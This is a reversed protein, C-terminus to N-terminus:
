ESMWINQIESDYKNTQEYLRKHFHLTNGIIVEKYPGNPGNNDICMVNVNTERYLIGPKHKIWNDFTMDYTGPEHADTTTSIFAASLNLPNNPM